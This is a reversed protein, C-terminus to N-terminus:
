FQYGGSLGFALTALDRTPADLPISVFANGVMKNYIGSVSPVLAQRFSGRQDSTADDLWITNYELNVNLNQMPHWSGGTQMRFSNRNKDNSGFSNRSVYSYAYDLNAKASWYNQSAFVGVRPNFTTAYPLYRYLDATPNVMAVTNGETSRSSPLFLDGAGFYGWRFVDTTKSLSQNWNFGLNINGLANEGGSGVANESASYFPFGGLLGVNPGVQGIARLEFAAINGSDLTGRAETVTNTFNLNVTSDPTPNEGVYYPSAVVHNFSLGILAILSYFFHKM